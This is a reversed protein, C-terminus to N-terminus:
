GDPAIKKPSSAAAASFQYSFSHYRKKYQVTRKVMQRFKTHSDRELLSNKLRDHFERRKRNSRKSALSEIVSAVSLEAADSMTDLYPTATFHQYNKAWFYQETLYPVIVMPTANKHCVMQLCVSGTFVVLSVRTVISEYPLHGKHVYIKMDKINTKMDAMDDETIFAEDTDKRSTDHFITSMGFNEYLKSALLLATKKLRAVHAFSGFSIFVTNAKRSSNGFAEDNQGSSELFRVIGAPLDKSNKNKNKKGVPPLLSGILEMHLGPLLANEDKLRVMLNPDVLLAHQMKQISNVVSRPGCGNPMMSSLRYVISEWSEKVLKRHSKSDMYLKFDPRRLNRDFIWPIVGNPMMPAYYMIFHPTKTLLSTELFSSKETLGTDQTQEQKENNSQASTKKFSLNEAWLLPAMLASHLIAADPSHEREVDYILQGLQRVWESVQVAQMPHSLAWAIINRNSDAPGLEPDTYIFGPTSYTVVKSVIDPYNHPINEDTVYIIENGKLALLIEHLISGDCFTGTGFVAVKM